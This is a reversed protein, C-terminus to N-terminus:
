KSCTDNNSISFFQNFTTFPPLAFRKRQAVMVNGYWVMVHQCWTHIKEFCQNVARCRDHLPGPFTSTVAKYNINRSSIEILLFGFVWVQLADVDLSAHECRM